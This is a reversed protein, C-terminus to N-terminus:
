REGGRDRAPMALLFCIVLGSGGLGTWLGLRMDWFSWFLTFIVLMTLPIWSLREASV